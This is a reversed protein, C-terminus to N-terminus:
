VQKSNLSRLFSLRVASPLKYSYRQLLAKKNETKREVLVSEHILSSLLHLKHILLKLKLYNNLSNKYLFSLLFLHFNFKKTNQKGQHQAEAKHRRNRSHCRRICHIIISWRVKGGNLSSNGEGRGAVGDVNGLPLVRLVQVYRGIIEGDNTFVHFLAHDVELAQLGVPMVGATSGIGASRTNQDAPIPTRVVYDLVDGEFAEGHLIGTEIWRYRGSAGM